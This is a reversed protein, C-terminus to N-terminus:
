KKGRAVDNLIKRQFSRRGDESERSHKYGEQVVYTDFVECLQRQFYRGYNTARITAEDWVVLGDDFFVVLDALEKSFYSDFNIDWKNSIYKTDISENIIYNFMLDRRILDDKSSKLGRQIPFEGQDLAQYYKDLSFFNQFYYDGVIMESSPGIGIINSGWGPTYGNANRELIGERKAVAIEDEPLAFHDIGILEYGEGNCFFNLADVFMHMRDEASPLTEEGYAHQHKFVDPRHGLTCVAIRDPRFEAVTKLTKQWSKITQYPMGFIVDFNLGKFMSRVDDPIMKSVLSPSNVRNIAEQVKPDFDQIGISIRNIGKSAYYRLLDASAGNRPDIEISCTELDNFNVLQGLAHILRDFDKRPIVSPTGGGFHLERILPRHSLQSFLDTLLDIERIMYSICQEYQISNSSIVTYCQCFFCQKPCFPFHLYLSIPKRSTDNIYQEIADVFDNSGVTEKWLGLMPYFTYYSGKRKGYKNVLGNGPYPFEVTSKM